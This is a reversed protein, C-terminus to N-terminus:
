LLMFCEPIKTYLGYDARSHTCEARHIETSANLLTVTAGCLSRVVLFSVIEEDNRPEM